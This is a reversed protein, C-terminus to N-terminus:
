VGKTKVALELPHCVVCKHDHGAIGSSLYLRCSPCTTVLVNVEKDKLEAVKEKQIDLMLEPNLYGFSGGGGCCKEEHDLEIYRGQSNNKLLKRPAKRSIEDGRTHCPAHYGWRTDEPVELSDPLLDKSDLFGMVERVKIKRDVANSHEEWMSVCSACDAIVLDVRAKSFAEGNKNVQERAKNLEGSAFAPLGCCGQDQPIVVEYGCKLMYNLVAEGTKQYVLNTMCGTFYGIRGKAEGQPKHVGAFRDLFTQGGFKPLEALPLFKNLVAAPKLGTENEKTVLKAPLAFFGALKGTRNLDRFAWLILKKKLPLGRESNVISRATAFIEGVPIKSPCVKACAECLLCQNFIEEVRKNVTIEGDLLGSLIRMRGRSTLSSLRTAKFVPCETLCLGCQLCYVLNDKYKELPALSNTM